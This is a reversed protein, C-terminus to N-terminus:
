PVRALSVAAQTEMDAPTPAPANAVLDGFAVFSAGNLLFISTAAVTQGSIAASGTVVTAKDALGPVDSVSEKLSLGNPLQDSVFSDVEAREKDWQAAASSADAGHGLQVFFVNKTHAGYTCRKGPDSASGTTEELGPGFTVGALTSAEQATVVQCPDDTVPAASASPSAQAASPSPSANPPNSSDPNGGGSSCATLAMAALAIPVVFKMRRGHM